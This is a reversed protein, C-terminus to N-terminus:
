KSKLKEKYEARLKRDKRQRVELKEKEIQSKEIDNKILCILDERFSGDSPCTFEHSFVTSGKTEDINWYEVDDFNLYSTWEGEIKGLIKSGKKLKHGGGGNEDIIVDNLEVINGRLYDPFTKKTKFFSSFFGPEDPNIEIFSCINNTLDEVLCNNIFNFLRDGMTIGTLIISPVRLQFLTNDKFKIYFNGLRTATVSNVNVSADTIVHGYMEFYNNKEKIYFNHTIPHNVTQEIYIDITEIRCQFTEGIIPNFPKIQTVCFHFSAILYTTVWKLREIKDKSFYAKTLYLPALQQEYAFAQQITRKDFIFVPFSINLVSKGQLINKGLKEVLYKVTKYIIKKKEEDIYLLGKKEPSNTYNIKWDNQYDVYFKFPTLNTINEYEKIIEEETKLTKELSLKYNFENLLPKDNYDLIFQDILLNEPFKIIIKIPIENKIIPISKGQSYKDKFLLKKLYDETMFVLPNNLIILPADNSSM